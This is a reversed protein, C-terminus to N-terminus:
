KFDLISILPCFGKRNCVDKGLILEDNSSHFGPLESAIKFLPGDTPLFGEAGRVAKKLCPDFKVDLQQSNQLNNSILELNCPILQIAILHNAFGPLTEFKARPGILSLVLLAENNFGNPEQMVKVRLLNDCSNYKLLHPTQPTNGTIWTLSEVGAVNSFDLYFSLIIYYLSIM